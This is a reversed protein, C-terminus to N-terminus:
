RGMESHRVAPPPTGPPPPPPWMLPDPMGMLDPSRTLGINMRALSAEADRASRGEIMVQGSVPIGSTTIIRVGTADSNGVDVVVYGVSSVFGGIPPAGAPPLGPVIGATTMTSNAAATLVYEDLLAGALDFEGVSNTKGFLVLANPRQQRPIALVQAGVAPQGSEGVIVVGHIHSAPMKGAGMPIDAGAFTEGSRVAVPTANRLDVVGGYYVVGYAEEIVSGDALVQRTVVPSTARQRARTRGPPSTPAMDISRRQPDEVLAAVYYEGPGLWYIRYDGHEDTLVTREIYVNREGARFEAELAMVVVHGMPQRDEDVVRGTIVGTLPMELKMDKKAEGAGVPFSLGRQRLDRQGYEVPYFADGVRVAALRYKGEKLDKFVFKGDAGTKGYRVEPALIAPPTAGGAPLGENTNYLIAAFAEAVGAGLPATATGEVRSLELDVNSLPETTGKKVVIGEISATAPVPTQGAAATTLLLLLVASLKKPM